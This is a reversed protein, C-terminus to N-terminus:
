FHQFLQQQAGGVLRNRRGQQEAPARHLAVHGVQQGFGTALTAGLQQEPGQGSSLIWMLIESIWHRSLETTSCRKQLAFAMPEFGNAPKIRLDRVWALTAM